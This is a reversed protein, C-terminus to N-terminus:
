LMSRKILDNTMYLIRGEISTIQSLPNDTLKFETYPHYHKYTLFRHSALPVNKINFIFLGYDSAPHPRYDFPPNVSWGIKNGVPEEAVAYGIEAFSTFQNTYPDKIGQVIIYISHTVRGVFSIGDAPITHKFIAFVPDTKVRDVIFNKYALLV